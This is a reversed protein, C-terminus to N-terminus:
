LAGGFLDLQMKSERERKEMLAKTKAEERKIAREREAKAKKELKEREAQEFDKLAKEKAKAKEEDSLEVHHNVVVRASIAGPDKLEKEDYFHKAMGFIEADTWGAIGSKKVEKLIYNVCGQVTKTPQEDVCKAFLPDAQKEQEIFAGITKAFAETAKM